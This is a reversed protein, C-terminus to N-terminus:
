EYPGGGEVHPPLSGGAEPACAGACRGLEQTRGGTLLSVVIYTHLRDTVTRTLVQGGAPKLSKSRRVARGIPVEDNMLTGSSWTERWRVSSQRRRLGGVGFVFRSGQTLLACGPEVPFDGSCARTRSIATHRAAMRMLGQSGRGVPPVGSFVDPGTSVVGRGACRRNSRDDRLALASSRCAPHM